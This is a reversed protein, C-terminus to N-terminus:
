SWSHTLSPYLMTQYVELLYLLPSHKTRPGHRSTIVSVLKSILWNYCLWNFSNHSLRQLSSKTSATSSDGSNSATLLFRCTSVSASQSSKAHATTIKLTYFNALTNCYNTIIVQLHDIFGIELGFGRRSDREYVHDNKISSKLSESYHSHLTHDHQNDYRTTRLFCSM